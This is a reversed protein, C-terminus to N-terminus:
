SPKSHQAHHVCCTILTGTGPSPCFPKAATTASRAALQARLYISVACRSCDPVANCATIQGSTQPEVKKESGQAAVTSFLRGSHKHSHSHMNRSHPMFTAQLFLPLHMQCGTSTATAALRPSACDQLTASMSGDAHMSGAQLWGACCMEGVMQTLHSVAAAAMQRCTIATDTAFALTVADFSWCCM